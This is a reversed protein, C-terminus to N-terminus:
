PYLRHPPPSVPPDELRALALAQREPDVESAVTTVRDGRRAPGGVVQLVVGRHGHGKLRLEDRQHELTDELAERPQLDDADLAPHGPQRGQHPAHAPAELGDAVVPGCTAAA